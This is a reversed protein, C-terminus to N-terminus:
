RLETVLYWLYCMVMCTTLLAMAALSYLWRPDSQAHVTEWPRMYRLNTLWARYFM